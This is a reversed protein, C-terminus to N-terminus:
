CAIGQNNDLLVLSIPPKRGKKWTVEEPTVAPRVMNIMLSHYVDDSGHLDEDLVWMSEEVDISSM